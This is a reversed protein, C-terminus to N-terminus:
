LRASTLLVGLMRRDSSSSDLESPRFGSTSTVSFLLVGEKLPLELTRKEWPRLLFKSAQGDYEIVVWNEQGGNALAVRGPRGKAGELAFRAKAGARIWFGKPDLYALDDLAHVDIGSDL